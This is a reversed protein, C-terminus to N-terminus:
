RGPVGARVEAIQEPTTFRALVEGDAGQAPASYKRFRTRAAPPPAFLAGHHPGRRSAPMGHRLEPSSATLVAGRRASADAMTPAVSSDVLRPAVVRPRAAGQGHRDPVRSGDALQPLPVCGDVPHDPRPLEDHRGGAVVSRQRAFARAAARGVRPRCVRARRRTAPARGRRSPTAARCGTRLRRPPSPAPGTAGLPRRVSRGPSRRPAPRKGM